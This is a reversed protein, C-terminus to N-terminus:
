RLFGARQTRLFDDEASVVVVLLLMGATTAIRM